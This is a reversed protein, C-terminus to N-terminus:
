TVTKDDLYKYTLRTGSLLETLAEDLTLDGSAGPTNVKSVVEARYVMAIGREAAFSQLAANLDQAAIETHKRIWGEAQDAAAISVLSLAVAMALVVRMVVGRGRILRIHAATQFPPPRM